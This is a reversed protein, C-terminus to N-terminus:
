GVLKLIDYYSVFLMLGILFAFGIVTLGATLRSSIPKRRVGEIAIIMLRGGDLGPIPLINILALNISILATLLVAQSWGESVASAGIGAIGIPGAVEAFNGSGRVLNAFFHALGQATAATMRYALTAGEIFAYHPPLKLIGIDDMQIGLVKRGEAIGEQPAVVFTKEEADRRVTLIISEDPYQGIFTRTREATINEELKENATSIDLIVDEPEIGSKAAPSEPLVSIITTQANKVEGLGDHAASAPLGYMYGASLVVWGFLLNMVIGAVIVAAQVLRPKKMFSEAQGARGPAGQPDSDTKEENGNEGFIRVFGGFPLWNLSYETEGFRKAFIRPPFFIGFEEVKIGFFKAVSFHGLEHVLILAVLILFFIFFSM